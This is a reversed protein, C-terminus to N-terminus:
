SHTLIQTQQFTTAGCVWRNFPESLIVVYGLRQDCSSTHSTELDADYISRYRYTADNQNACVSVVVLVTMIINIIMNYYCRSM